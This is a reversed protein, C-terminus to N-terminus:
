AARDTLLDSTALGLRAVREPEIHGAKLGIRLIAPSMARLDDDTLPPSVAEQKPPPLSRSDRESRERGEIRQVIEWLECAKPFFPKERSWRRAAEALIRPDTEAMDSALLAVRAAHAERDVSNAPPFRLGLHAIIETTQTSPRVPQTQWQSSPTQGHSTVLEGISRATEM